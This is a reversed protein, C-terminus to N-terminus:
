TRATFATGVAAFDGAADAALLQIAGDGAGLFLDSGSNFSELFTPLAAGTPTTYVVTGVTGTGLTLDAPNFKIVSGDNALVLGESLDAQLIGATTPLADTTVTPGQQDNFYGNGVADVVSMTGNANATVLNGNQDFSVAIPGAATPGTTNTNIKVRPGAVLTWASGSGQGYYLSVDNSGKNAVAIDLTGDNNIDYVTVGVPDTGVPRVLPNPAFHLGTNDIGFYVSVTNSGTNPVILDQFGDGNLDATVANTPRQTITVSSAPPLTEVPIFHTGDPSLTYSTVNGTAEDATIVGSATTVLSVTVGFNVATLPQFTGDGNGVLVLVDGARNGIVLDLIGDGNVDTVTLGTVQSGVQLPGLQGSSNLSFKEAFGGHGDNVYVHILGHVPDLVALDDFSSGTFDGAVIAGPVYGLVLNLPNLFGHFGTGPLLSLSDTGANFTIADTQGSGTFNGTVLGGTGIQSVIASTTSNIGFLGAGGRNAGELSFANSGNNVLVSVGGSSRNTVLIAPSGTPGPVVDIDSAGLGVAIVQAPLYGGGAPLFISVTGDGSNIVILADQGSGTLDAVLIRTPSPGTALASPLPSFSGDPKRYYLTVLNGNAALAAILDGGLQPVVAVARAAPGNLNVVVPAQFVGPHSPDVQRFLIAGAQDVLVLGGSGSSAPDVPLPTAEIPNAISGSDVFTDDATGLFFSVDNSVNNVVALDPEGNGFDATAVAVPVAGAAMSVAVPNFQGGGTGYLVSIGAGGDATILATGGDPFRAFAIAQAGAGVNYEVANPFDGLGDPDLWVTVQYSNAPPYSVVTAVDLHGNGFDGLVMSGSIGQSLTAYLTASQFTLDGNGILVALAGSTVVAGMIIGTLSAVLDLKGNGLDVARLESFHQIVGISINFTEVTDYSSAQFTGDGNGQCIAVALTPSLGGRRLGVVLDLKGDGNFDALVPATEIAM